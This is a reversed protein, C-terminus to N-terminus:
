SSLEQRLSGTREDFRSLMRRVTRESIGLVSAADPQGLGDVRCLVVVALEEEPVSGVLSTIAARAEALTALDLGCPVAAAVDEQVDMRRRDRLVDIALRTCTRYLWAMVVRTENGEIMGSKWLRVFTEQTVDEAAASRGLLRQCKAQIPAFFRGYAVSFDTVLSPRCHAGSGAVLGSSNEGPRGFPWFTGLPRAPHPLVGMM